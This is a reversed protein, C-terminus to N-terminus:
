KANQAMRLMEDLLEQLYPCKEYAISPDLKQFLEKGHTVKKYGRRFRSEYLRDLLKAPPEDFNVTEPHDIKAPLDRRVEQPFIPRSSLLWAETEHVAPFFRFRPHGVRRQLEDKAWMYREAATKKDAPYFDPGCLDLIAIVAIVDSQQKPRGLYM